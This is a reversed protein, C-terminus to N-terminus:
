NTKIDMLSQMLKYNKCYVFQKQNFKIHKNINSKKQPKFIVIKITLFFNSNLLYM